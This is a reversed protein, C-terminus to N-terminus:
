HNVPPSVQFGIVAIAAFCFLLNLPLTGFDLMLVAIFAFVACVALASQETAPPSQTEAAQRQYHATVVATILAVLQQFNNNSGLSQEERDRAETKAETDMFALVAASLVADEFEDIRSSHCFTTTDNQACFGWAENISDMYELIAHLM